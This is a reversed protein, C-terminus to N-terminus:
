PSELTWESAGVDFTWRAQSIVNNGLILPAGEMRSRLYSGFDFTAVEMDRLDHQGIDLAPCRYVKSEVAHGHADRGPESRAFVFLEPHQDVFASDVITSDAGTDFLAQVHQDGIQIPITMHGRRLIQMRYRPLNEPLSRLIRLAHAALDVQFVFRGLLDMGVVNRDCRRIRPKAFRHGGLRLENPQVVDCPEANGSVGTSTDSGLSRYRRTNADLGLSSLAAGTDLLFRSPTGDVLLDVSALSSQKPTAVVILTVTTDQSTRATRAPASACGGVLATVLVSAFRTM